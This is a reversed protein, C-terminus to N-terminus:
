IEHILALAKEDDPLTENIEIRPSYGLFREDGPRGRKFIGDAASLSNTLVVDLRKLEPYARYLVPNDYIESLSFASQGEPFNVSDLNDPIEYRWQGDMGSFWGTEGFIEENPKGEEKLSMARELAERVPSTMNSHRGAFQYYTERVKMNRGDYIVYNHTGDGKDRSLKDLYRHGPIGAEDLALSAVKDSGLIESLWRYFTAGEMTAGEDVTQSKLVPFEISSSKLIKLVERAYRIAPEGHRAPTMKQFDSEARSVTRERDGWMYKVARIATSLPGYLVNGERDIWNKGGDGTSYEAGDVVATKLDATGRLPISHKVAIKVLANKVSGPQEFLPRDWDLLADNEPIELCYLQGHGGNYEDLLRHGEWITEGIRTEDWSPELRSLEHRLNEDSWNANIYRAATNARNPTGDDNYQTSLLPPRVGINFRGM